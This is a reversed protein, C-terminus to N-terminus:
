LNWGLEIPREGNGRSATPLQIDSVVGNKITAIKISTKRVVVAARRIVQLTMFAPNRVLYIGKDNIAKYQRFCEAEFDEPTMEMLKLHDPAESVPKFDPFYNELINDLDRM